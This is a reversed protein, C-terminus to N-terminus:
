DFLYRALMRKLEALIKDREAAPQAWAYAIMREGTEMAMRLRLDLTAADGAGLRKQIFARLLGAPGAGPRMQSERALASIHGGLALARFDPHGELYEVYADIMRGLVVPGSRLASRVLLRAMRARFREMHRVAVADFIAQKDPFFRYLAGVSLGAEAAIRTTNIQELPLRELLASCARLVAEVTSAGRPQVPARRVPIDKAPTEKM